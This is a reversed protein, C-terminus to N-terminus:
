GNPAEKPLLSEYIVTALLVLGLFVGALYPNM